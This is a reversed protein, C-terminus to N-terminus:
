LHARGDTSDASPSVTAANAAWMASASYCAALLHPADRAAREVIQADTGAFGLRRLAAVHPRPQPPLVAQAIGLDALFKMKALGQLAAERPHSVLHHNQQSALNGHALGAYNHTLGVIGDFNFERAPATM